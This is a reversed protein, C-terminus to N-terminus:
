PSGPSLTGSVGDDLTKGIMSGIIIKMGSVLKNHKTDWFHGEEPRLRVATVRPDDEGETFWTKAIPTWLDHIVLKETTIDATGRLHLFESKDPNALLFEVRPDDTIERNLTSDSASLFWLNAEMDVKLVTMPRAGLGGAMPHRTVFFGMRTPEVLTRIRDVAETGTLHEFNDEPQERDISSM